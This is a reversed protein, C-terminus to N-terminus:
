VLDSLEECLLISFFDSKEGVWGRRALVRRKGHPTRADNLDEINYHFGESTPLVPPTKGNALIWQIPSRGWSTRHTGGGTEVRRRGQQVHKKLLRSLNIGNKYGPRAENKFGRLPM